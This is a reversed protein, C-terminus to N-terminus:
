NARTLRTSNKLPSHVSHGFSRVFLHVRIDNRGAFRDVAKRSQCRRPTAPPVGAGLRVLLRGAGPVDGEPGRAVVVAAEREFEQRPEDVVIEPAAAPFDPQLYIGRRRIQVFGAVRKSEMDERLVKVRSM